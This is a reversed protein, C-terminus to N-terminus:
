LLATLNKLALVLGSALLAIIVLRRVAAESIHRVAWMGLALGLLMFPLLLAATTLRAVTLIGMGTYLFIRFTNEIIFVMCMDGRFQATNDSTRGVYAALLAGVDYLGCLVGSLLGIVPLTGRPAGQPSPRAKRCLMELGIGMTLLGFLLKIVRADGNKLLLAGPIAGLLVMLSLPGWIAFRTHAREKWAMLINAPYGLLLDVPSLNVNDTAFGMVTTFVLTNAFGCVGKVFYAILVAIAMLPEM